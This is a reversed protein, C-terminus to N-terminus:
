FTALAEYVRYAFRICRVLIICARVRSRLVYVRATHRGAHLFFCSSETSKRVANCASFVNNIIRKNRILMVVPKRTQTGRTGM